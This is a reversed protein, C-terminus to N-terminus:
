SVKRAAVVLQPGRLGLSALYFLPASAVRMVPHYLLPLLRQAVRGGHERLYFRLSLLFTPYAASASSRELIQFGRQTLLRGLTQPTFVYLHRPPELGAWYQGFWGADRSAGNPVRVVLVGGPRLIRRIELLSAAPDHLHELVDWLTVADFAQDPFSAAEVTGIRVDLGHRERAIQAAAPSTEVGLVEWDGAARVGRLFTGTACGVDLLRGRPQHRTVFSRRKAMGYDYAWRLWPSLAVAEPEPAYLEYDPLYHAGMEDLTPRPNQYILGCRRCQVLRARVQFREFLRDPVDFRLDAEASGCLNCVVTEM